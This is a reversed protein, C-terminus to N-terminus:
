FCNVNSQKQLLDVVKLIKKWLQNRSGHIRASYHFLIRKRNQKTLLAAKRFHSPREDDLEIIEVCIIEICTPNAARREGPVCINNAVLYFQRSWKKRGVEILGTLFM